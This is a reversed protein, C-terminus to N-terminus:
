PNFAIITRLSNQKVERTLTAHLTDYNIAKLLQQTLTDFVSNETLDKKLVIKPLEFASGQELHDVYSGPMYVIIADDPIRTLSIHLQKTVWYSVTKDEKQDTIYELSFIKYDSKPDIALYKVTNDEINPTIDNVVVLYFFTQSKDVSLEFAISKSKIDIDCPIIVGGHWIRVSTSRSFYCPLEINGMLLKCDTFSQLEKIPILLLAILVAICKKNM